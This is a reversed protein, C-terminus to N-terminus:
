SGAKVKFCIKVSYRERIREEKIKRIKASKSSRQSVRHEM